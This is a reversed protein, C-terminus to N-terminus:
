VFHSKSHMDFSDLASLSSLPNRVKVTVVGASLAVVAALVLVVTRVGGEWPARLQLSYDAFLEEEESWQSLWQAEEQEVSSSRAPATSNGSRHAAHNAVEAGTAVFNDGYEAPSQVTHAGTKHPFPCERPFVYHLMQAFLRGHLPVKGGHTEAIRHLQARLSNSLKPPEDDFTTMNALPQLIEEPSAVPARVFDEIENLVGECENQCCLFYHPTTVICNNPGLLYNSIIVQKGTWPSSEDLAGLERLYSESEGFRWEGDSNAGYFDSLSVRGTGRKDMAVLSAKISQCESEWYSGFTNTITGVVEHVDDFSYRQEMAVLGHGPQLRHQRDFQTSKALGYAMNRIDVWHPVEDELLTQNSLLLRVLDLDDGMMWHVLYREVIRSLERFSLHEDSTRREEKYATELLTGEADFTLQEMTIVLAVADELTFGDSTRKNELVQEVLSPASNTLIQAAGLHSENVQRVPELGRILLHSRQVFYRHAVYRLMRWEVRGHENKPLVDWMPALTKQVAASRDGKDARGCGAVAEMAHRFEADRDVLNFRHAKPDHKLFGDGAALASPAGLLVLFSALTFTQLSM